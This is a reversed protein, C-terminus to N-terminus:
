SYLNKRRTAPPINLITRYKAVTRRAVEIQNKKLINVIDQDKLPCKSDEEMVLKKIMDKVTVSSLSEGEGDTRQISSNFFYKFEFIGQPSYMYKNTTVRSITSEHMSIDEAVQRLVLPKLFAVGKDFFEKQFKVISEAVRLITRNRQEISRVLWLASRLKEDLYTKTAEHDKGKERLLKKYYSSIRLKPFSDDNLIVVFDKNGKVVLVDPMVNQNVNVTFPRGPKPELCEIIKACHLVEELVVGLSKAIVSYRKRELDEMHQNIMGEVISNKLDLQAVQILLCEKLNRAAVGPPDFGQVVQLVKEVMPVATGTSVAIEELSGSLYGNEDINGIISEGIMKEPPSLSMLSLQWLLHDVLSTTKALIQDFSSSEDQSLNGYEMDRHDDYDDIYDEWKLDFESMEDNKESEAEGKELNDRLLEDKAAEEQQLPEDELSEELLPNEMIEQTITQSLELRSLQLLKIAQQLQPTMILKQSLRLDLRPKM